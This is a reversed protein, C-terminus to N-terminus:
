GKGPPASVAYMVYCGVTNIKLSDDHYIGVDGIIVLPTLRAFPVYGGIVYPSGVVGIV